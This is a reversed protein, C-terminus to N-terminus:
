WKYITRWLKKGSPSKEAPSDKSIRKWLQKKMIIGTGHLNWRETSGSLMGIFIFEPGLIYHEGLFTLRSAHKRAAM